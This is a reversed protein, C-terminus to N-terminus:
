ERRTVAQQQEDRERKRGGDINENFENKKEEREIDEQHGDAASCLRTGLSLIDERKRALPCLLLYRRGSWFWDPRVTTIVFGTHVWARREALGDTDDATLTFIVNNVM